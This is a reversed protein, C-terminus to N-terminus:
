PLTSTFNYSGSSLQYTAINNRRGLATIEQSEAADRGDELIPENLRSPLHLTASTNPPVTLELSFKGESITWASVIEGYVTHLRASAQSLGGGPHPHIISHKYGPKQPDLGLGAVTSYLWEGIAGYAYHNFSNM